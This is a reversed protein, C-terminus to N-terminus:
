NEPWPSKTLEHFWCASWASTERYRLRKPYCSVDVPKKVEVLGVPVAPARSVDAQLHPLLFAGAAAVGVALGALVAVAKRREARRERVAEGM